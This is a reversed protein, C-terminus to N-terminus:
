TQREDHRETDKHKTTTENWDNKNQMEQKLKTLKLQDWTSILQSFFLM